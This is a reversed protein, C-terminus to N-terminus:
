SECEEDLRAYSVRTCECTVFTREFQNDCKEIEFPPALRPKERHCTTVLSERSRLGEVVRHTEEEVREDKYGVVRPTDGVGLVVGSGAVQGAVLNEHGARKRLALDLLVGLLDFDSGTNDEILEEFIGGDVTETPEENM